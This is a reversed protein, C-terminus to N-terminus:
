PKETNDDTDSFPSGLYVADLETLKSKSVTVNKLIVDTYGSARAKFIVEYNGPRIGRILFHGAADPIALMIPTDSDTSNYVGAVPMAEAPYVSGSISGSSAESFLRFYPKLFYKGHGTSYVSQFAEIDIMLRFVKGSELQAEYNMEIGTAPNILITLPYSVGEVVITNNNGYIMRLISIKGSNVKAAGLMIDNGNGTGSLSFVGPKTLPISIWGDVDSYLELKQIDLNVADYHSAEGSVMVEVTAKETQLDTENTKSVDPNKECSTLFSVSLLVMLLGIFNILKKM